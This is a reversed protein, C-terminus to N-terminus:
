MNDSIATNVEERIHELWRASHPYETFTLPKELGNEVIALTKDYGIKSELLKLALMDQIGDYFVHLRLSDLPMGNEGPYVVFSDGAQFNGGADATEFPDIVAKSYQTYYFNYGWHLFGKVNYKYLQLGLVRNRESPMAFFRNSVYKSGQACCYYTWLEPVNGVFPEIHDNAPIPLKILGSKYLNYSSLADIIKFDKFYKNVIKSATGYTIKMAGAPEDSIHLLCKERIGKKDIYETLAAAFQKIFLRYRIGGAITKWGFIQKLEGNEEAMIKPAHRAGWQTFLHSMEYYKISCRECMEIWKDLKEFSFSYKNLGEVKVDVLQVTPREGGVKTDLPPTFLPTLVCNMGYEVARRLYNETVRWYEDSFAEFGYISMLCDTHFWNTYILEQKPLFADIINIGISCKEDGLEVCIDHNGAPLSDGTIQVWVSNYGDNKATFDTTNMPMLLDPYYEQSELFYDDDKKAKVYGGKIMRVESFKLYDSLTSKVAFSIEEGKKVDFIIQFAKKENKLMSLSKLEYIDKSNPFVKELSSTIFVKKM